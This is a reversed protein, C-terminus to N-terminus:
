ENVTSPTLRLTYTYSGWTPCEYQPLCSDGACSNNGLGRQWYDFHAYVTNDRTLDYPHLEESWMVDGYYDWASENYHSLSFAVQGETQVKLNTGNTRDTLVLERLAQRDGMTQPHPLEEFMDDVTTTYRGLYSGTQRDVYNSWPGKAYYEVNEFGGPFQMGLGIRRTASRPTFTVKMDIVGSPYITYAITYNCLSGSGQQTM